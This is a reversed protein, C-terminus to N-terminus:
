HLIFRGNDSDIFMLLNHAMAFRYVLVIATHPIMSCIGGQIIVRTDTSSVRCINPNCKSQILYRLREALAPFNIQKSQNM